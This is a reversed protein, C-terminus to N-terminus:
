QKPSALQHPRHNTKLPKNSAENAIGGLFAGELLSAFCCDISSKRRACGLVIEDVDPIEATTEVVLENGATKDVTADADVAEDDAVDESAAEAGTM